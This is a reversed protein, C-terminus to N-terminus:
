QRPQDRLDQLIGDRMANAVATRVAAANPGTNMLIDVADDSTDATDAGYDIFEVECYPARIPRFDATNGLFTDAAVDTNHIASERKNARNDYQHLAVVVRDIITNACDADEQANVNGNAQVVQLTGRARHPTNGDDNSNFHIIFIIDAGNDRAKAARKDGRVNEDIERTMFIRLKLKDQQRKTRLSDRLALGYDLTMTKEFVGSPSTANNAKSGPLNALGGHGPDIVVIAPVEFLIEATAGPFKEIEM